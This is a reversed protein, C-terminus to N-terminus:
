DKVLTIAMHDRSSRADMCGPIAEVDDTPLVRTSKAFGALTEKKEISEQVNGFGSFSVEARDLAETVAQLAYNKSGGTGQLDHGDQFQMQMKWAREELARGQLDPQQVQPNWLQDEARDLAETVAQLAYNKSGGTGQLDHGDQLEMQMKWAQEELVRGQLDPQQVEPNWLQDLNNLECNVEEGSQAMRVVYSPPSLSHDVAVVSALQGALDTWAFSYISGDPAGQRYVADGVNLHTEPRSRDQMLQKAEQAKLEDDMSLLLKDIKELEKEWDKNEPELKRGAGFALAAEELNGLERLCCGKRFYGKPWTPALEVAVHADALAMLQDGLQLRAACRNSYLAALGFSHSAADEANKPSAQIARTYHEVAVQFEKRKFCESGKAKWETVLEQWNSEPLEAAENVIDVPSPSTVCEPVAPCLIQLNSLLRYLQHVATDSSTEIPPKVACYRKLREEKTLVMAETDKVDVQNQPEADLEEFCRLFSVYSFQLADLADVVERLPLHGHERRVFDSGYEELVMELPESSAIYADSDLWAVYECSRVIAWQVRRPPYLGDSLMERLGWNNVQPRRFRYGHLLAYLRNLHYTISWFNTLHEPEESM